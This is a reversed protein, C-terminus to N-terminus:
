LWLLLVILALYTLQHGAQDIGTLTWFGARDPGLGLRHNLREKAWDLHYHVAAEYALLGALLLPGPGLWLLIPLTGLLHVGVHALGGPHGYRGKNALMWPTQLLFDAVLHKIQFLVLAAVLVPPELPSM